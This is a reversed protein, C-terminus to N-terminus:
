YNEHNDPKVKETILAGMAAIPIAFLVKIWNIHGTSILPEVAVMIALAIGLLTTKWSNGLYKFLNNKIFTKM